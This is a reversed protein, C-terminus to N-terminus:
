RLSDGGGTRSGAVQQAQPDFVKKGLEHLDAIDTHDKRYNEWHKREDENKSHLMNLDALTKHYKKYDAWYGGKSEAM